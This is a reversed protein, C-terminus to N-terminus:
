EDSECHRAIVRYAEAIGLEGSRSLDICGKEKDKIYILVLGRNFYAEGMAPYLELARTFAEVAEVSRGSLCDLIGLDYHLYPSDPLIRLAEELDEFAESYDYTEAVRDSVRARTRGEGDLTLTQVNSEMSSIFRIMDARLAARNMLYFARYLPAYRDPDAGEAARGFADSAALYQKRELARLGDLFARRAEPLVGDGGEPTDVAEGRNEETAAMELPVGFSGLFRELLPNEYGRSLAMRPGAAERAIRVAYLPRLTISVERQGIQENDFDKKAFDADLALLRDLSATTDSLASGSGGESVRERFEAVKRRATTLDRRSAAQRGLRSNVYARNQYAKAFDPFLEIAKDYDDLANEWQEMQTFFVARNFYALVNGPNIDIVRDMDALARDMEGVQAYILSRNYLTLANGPQLELVRNLDAVARNWESRAYYIQSRYFYAFLNEGDLSIAQDFDQIAEDLRGQAAYLRGRRSYGEPEFRDLRIATDYDDLARTTDQLFLYCAGRNLYASPDKPEKRIYKDFDAVAAEFQQSLFLTVGRTFYLGAYGPRLGVATELDRLAEDYRGFRGETIARYHYGSTFVPNLRVAHDFDGHAGRLDGLNYKAIGRYFFTWHDSTDLQALINFDEIAEAYKGEVIAQRGAYYFHDKDYQASASLGPLLLLPLLLLARGPCALVRRLFTRCRGRAAGILCFIETETYFHSIKPGYSRVFILM